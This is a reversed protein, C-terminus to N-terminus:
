QNRCSIDKSVSQLRNGDVSSDYLKHFIAHDFYQPHVVPRGLNFVEFCLTSSRLKSCLHFLCIVARRVREVVPIIVM